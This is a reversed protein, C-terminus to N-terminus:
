GWAGALGRPSQHPRSRPKSLRSARTGPGHRGAESGAASEMIARVVELGDPCTGSPDMGAGEAAARSGALPDVRWGAM